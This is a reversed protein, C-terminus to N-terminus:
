IVSPTIYCIYSVGGGIVDGALYCNKLEMYCVMKVRAIYCGSGGLLIVGWGAVYVGKRRSYILPDYRYLVLLPPLWRLIQM